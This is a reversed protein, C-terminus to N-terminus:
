VNKIFKDILEIHKASAKQCLDAFYMGDSDDSVSKVMLCPVGNKLCTILIGATEMECIDANYLTILKQKDEKRAVFLDASACKATKIEGDLSKIVEILGKDARIFESDFQEYRGAPYPDIASTDFQYHVVSEVVVTDLLKLNDSIKGCIGFNVICEVGFGTILYQTAGAASIEGVGSKVVYIQKGYVNTHWVDYPTNEMKDVTALTSFYERLEVDMAVIIGIKKM